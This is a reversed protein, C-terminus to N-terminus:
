AKIGMAIFETLAMFLTDNYISYRYRYQIQFSRGGRRKM